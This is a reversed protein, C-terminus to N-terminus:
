LKNLIAGLPIKNGMKLFNWFLLTGPFDGLNERCGANERQRAGAGVRPL